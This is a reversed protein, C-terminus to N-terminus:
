AVRVSRETEVVSYDDAVLVFDVNPRRGAIRRRMLASGARVLGFTADLNMRSEPLSESPEWDPNDRFNDSAQYYLDHDYHAMREAGSGDHVHVTPFFLETPMDTPYTYAMPHVKSRGPKLQFVAFGFNSYDPLSNWAKANLRFRSDLNHFYFRSPVYSAIFDGVDHVKLTRSDGSAVGGRSGALMTPFLMKMDKFFDPYEKLNVFRLADEGSGQLVPVPLIMAVPHATDISMEYVTGHVGRGLDNVFISTGSIGKIAGSLICM